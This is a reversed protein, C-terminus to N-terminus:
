QKVRKYGAPVKFLAPDLKKQEIKKLTSTVSGGMMRTQTQVAFGDMEKMMGLLNMQKLMPNASFLQATKEGIAQLEGYGPIDRTVWHDSQTMMVSVVFKRCPYGAITRTEGTPTVKISQAMSQMMAQMMKMQEADAGEMDAGPVGLKDVETRTYTRAQKDIEYIVKEKFDLLSIQEPTETMTADASIFTKILSTGAPQGPIGQSVQETEIYLDALAGGAGCFIWGSVAALVLLKAFKM